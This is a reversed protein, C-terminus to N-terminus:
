KGGDAVPKTMQYLYIRGPREDKLQSLKKLTLFDTERPAYSSDPVYVYLGEETKKDEQLVIAVNLRDFRVRLPKLKAITEGFSTEAIEKRSAGAERSARQQISALNAAHVIAQRQNADLSEALKELDIRKKDDDATWASSSAMTTVTIIASLIEIVAIRRHM